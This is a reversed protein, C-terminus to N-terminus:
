WEEEEKKDETLDQSKPKLFKAKIDGGCHPCSFLPPKYNCKIHDKELYGFFECVVCDELRKDRHSKACSVFQKIKIKM